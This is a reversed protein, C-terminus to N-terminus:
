ADGFEEMLTCRVSAIRTVIELPVAVRVDGRRSDSSGLRGGCSDSGFYECLSGRNQYVTHVNRDVPGTLDACQGNAPVTFCPGASLDSACLLADGTPFLHHTTNRSALPFTSHDAARNLSAATTIDTATASPLFDGPTPAALTLAFLGALSAFLHLFRM